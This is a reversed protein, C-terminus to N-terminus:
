EYRPTSISQMTSIQMNGRVGQLMEIKRLSMSGGAITALYSLLINMIRELIMEIGAMPGKEMVRLTKGFDSAALAPGGLKAAANIIDADKMGEMEEPSFRKRAIDIIELLRVAEPGLSQLDSFAGITDGMAEKIDRGQKTQTDMFGGYVMMAKKFPTAEMAELLMKGPALRNQMPAFAMYTMAPVKEAVSLFDKVTKIALQPQESLRAWFGGAKDTKELTAISGILKIMDNDIENYGINAYRLTDTQEAYFGTLDEVNMGLLRSRGLLEQFVAGTDKGSVGLSNMMVSAVKVSQATSLGATKGINVMNIINKASEKNVNQLASTYEDAGMTLKTTLPITSVAYDQYAMEMLEIAEKQSFFSYMAQNSFETRMRVATNPDSGLGVYRLFPIAEFTKGVGKILENFIGLAASIVGIGTAAGAFKGIIGGLGPIMADAAGKTSEGISALKEKWQLAMYTGVHGSQLAQKNKATTEAEAAEKARLTTHIYLEGTNNAAKMAAAITNYKKTELELNKIKEKTIFNSGEMEQELLPIARQLATNSLLKLNVTRTLLGNEITRSKILQEIDKNGSKSALQMLKLGSSMEAFTATGNKAKEAVSLLDSALDKVISQNSLITGGLKKFGEQWDALQKLGIDDPM